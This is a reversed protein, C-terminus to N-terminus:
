NIQDTRSVRFKRAGKHEVRKDDRGANEEAFQFDSSDWKPDGKYQEHSDDHAVEAVDDVGFDQFEYTFEAEDEEDEGDADLYAGAEERWELFAAYQEVSECHQDYREIDSDHEGDEVDVAVCADFGEYADHWSGHGVGRTKCGSLLSGARGFGDVDHSHAIGGGVGQTYDADDERHENDFGDEFDAGFILDFGDFVFYFAALM